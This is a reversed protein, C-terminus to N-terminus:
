QNQNGVTLNGRNRDVTAPGIGKVEALDDVSRFSGHQERYGVIAQAKAMGVGDLEAALVEADATNINVPAAQVWTAAMLCLIGCMRKLGVM